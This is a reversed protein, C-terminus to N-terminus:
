RYREDFKQWIEYSKESSNYKTIQSNFLIQSTSPDIIKLVDSSFPDKHIRPPHKISEDLRNMTVGSFRIQFDQKFEEISFKRIPNYIGIIGRPTSGHILIFKGAIAQWSITEDKIFKIEFIPVNTEQFMEKNVIIIPDLAVKQIVSFLRSRRYIEYHCVNNNDIELVKSMQENSIGWYGHNSEYDIDILKAFPNDILKEDEFQIIDNLINNGSTMNIKDAVHAELNEKTFDFLLAKITDKM